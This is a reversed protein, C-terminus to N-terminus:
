GGAHRTLYALIRAREAAGPPQMGAEAYKTDMRQVQIRWMAATLTGPHYAPHCTGCREGYLVADASGEEPLARACGGVWLALALLPLAARLPPTSM